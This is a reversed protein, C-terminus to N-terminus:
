HITMVMANTVLWASLRESASIRGDRHEASHTDRILGLRVMWVGVILAATFWWKKRIGLTVKLSDAM